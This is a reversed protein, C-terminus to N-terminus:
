VTAASGLIQREEDAEELAEPDWNWLEPWPRSLCRFHCPQLRWTQKRLFGLTLGQGPLLLRTQLTGHELSRPPTKGARQAGGCMCVCGASPAPPRVFRGAFSVVLCLVQQSASVGGQGLCMCQTHTQALSTTHVSATWRNRCSPM